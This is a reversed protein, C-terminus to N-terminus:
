WVFTAMVRALGAMARDATDSVRHVAAQPRPFAARPLPRGGTAPRSAPSSARPPDISATGRCEVQDGDGRRLHGPDDHGFRLDRQQPRHPLAIGTDTGTHRHLDADPQTGTGGQLIHQVWQGLAQRAAERFASATRERHPLVPRGAGDKRRHWADSCGQTSGDPSPPSHSGPIIGDDPKSGPKLTLAKRDAREAPCARGPGFGAVLQTLRRNEDAPPKSGSPKTLRSFKRTFRASLCTLRWEGTTAAYLPSAPLPCGQARDCRM